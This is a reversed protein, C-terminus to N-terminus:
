QTENASMCEEPFWYQGNGFYNLYCSQNASLLNAWRGYSGRGALLCKSNALIYLDVFTSYYLEPQGKIDYNRRALFNKGRDLHLPEETVNLKKVHKSLRSGYAVAKETVLLSDTAVYLPEDRGFGLACTTANEILGPITSEDRLYQTRMHLANYQNPILNLERTNHDILDQVAPSPQFLLSWIDHFITDCDPENPLLQGNYARAGATYGFASRTDIITSNSGKAAAIAEKSDSLLACKQQFELKSDLWEPVTWDIGGRVPVLFEELKAPREWKILFIRNMQAALRLKMPMSRLRDSTGGCQNDIALCRQIFYKQEQWNSENLLKRQEHHWSIYETLWNPLDQTPQFGTENRHIIPIIPLLELAGDGEGTAKSNSLVAKEYYTWSLIQLFTALGGLRVFRRISVMM